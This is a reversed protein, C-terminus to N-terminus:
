NTRRWGAKDKLLEIRKLAFEHSAPVIKGEVTKVKFIKWTKGYSVLVRGNNRLSIRIGGDSEWRELEEGNCRLKAM